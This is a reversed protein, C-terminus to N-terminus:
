LLLKIIILFKLISFGYDTNKFKASVGWLGFLNNLHIKYRNNHYVTTYGPILWPSPVIFRIDICIIWKIIFDTSLVNVPSIQKVGGLIVEIKLKWLYTM